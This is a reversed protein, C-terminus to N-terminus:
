TLSIEPCQNVGLNQLMNILRIYMSQTFIVSGCMMKLLNGTVQTFKKGDMSKNAATACDDFQNCLM